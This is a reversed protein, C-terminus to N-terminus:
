DELRKRCRELLEADATAVPVIRDPTWTSWRMSTDVSVMVFPEISVVIAELYTGSGCHLPDRDPNKSRVISGVELVQILATRLMIEVHEEPIQLGQAIEKNSMGSSNSFHTLHHRLRRFQRFMDNQAFVWGDTRQDISAQEIQENIAAMQNGFDQALTM